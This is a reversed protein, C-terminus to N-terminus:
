CHVQISCSRADMTSPRINDFLSKWPSRHAITSSWLYEPQLHCRRCLPSNTLGLRLRWSHVDYIVKLMRSLSPDQPGPNSPTTAHAPSSMECLAASTPYSSLTTAPPHDELPQPASVTPKNTRSFEGIALSMSSHSEPFKRLVASLLV